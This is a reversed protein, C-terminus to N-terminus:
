RHLRVKLRPIGLRKMMRYITVREVDRLRAVRSVNWDNAELDQRLKIRDIDDVSTRALFERVELSEAGPDEALRSAAASLVPGLEDVAHKLAPKDVVGAIYLLLAQDELKTVTFTAHQSLADKRWRRVRDLANQDINHSLLLRPDSEDTFVAASRAHTNDVILMLTRLAGERPQIQALLDAAQFLLSRDM